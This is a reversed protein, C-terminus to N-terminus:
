DAKWNPNWNLHLKLWFCAPVSFTLTNKPAQNWPFKLHNSCVWGEWRVKLLTKQHTSSQEILSKKAHISSSPWAVSIHKPTSAVIVSSSPKLIQLFSFFFLHSLFLSWVSLIRRLCCLFYGGGLEHIRKLSVSCKRFWVINAGIFSKEMNACYILEDTYLCRSLWRWGRVDSGTKSVSYGAWDMVAVSDM